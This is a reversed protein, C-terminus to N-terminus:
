VTWNMLSECKFEQFFLDLACYVLRPNSTKASNKGEKKSEFIHIQAAQQYM